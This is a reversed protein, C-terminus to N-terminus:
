KIRGHEKQKHFRKIKNSPKTIRALEYEWDHWHKNTRQQHTKGILETVVKTIRAQKNWRKKKKIQTM